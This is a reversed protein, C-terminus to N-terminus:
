NEKLVEKARKNGVEPGLITCFEIVDKAEGTCYKILLLLKSATNMLRKSEFIIEFNIM